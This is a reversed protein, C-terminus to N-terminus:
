NVSEHGFLFRYQTPTYGTVRKFKSSMAFNNKAGVLKSIETVTRDTQRLYKAMYEVQLYEVLEEFTLEYNRKLWHSLASQKMDMKEAIATCNVGNHLERMLISILKGFREDKRNHGRISSRMKEFRVINLLIKLIQRVGKEMSKVKSFQNQSVKIFHSLDIKERMRDDVKGILVMLVWSFVLLLIKPMDNSFAFIEEAKFLLVMHLLEKNRTFLGVTFMKERVLDFKKFRDLYDKSQFTDPSLNKVSFLKNGEDEISSVDLHEYIRLFDDRAWCLIEKVGDVRKRITNELQTEIGERDVFEKFKLEGRFDISYRKFEADFCFPGVTLILCINRISLLEKSACFLQPSCQFFAVGGLTHAYKASKYRERFCITIGAEKQHREECFSDQPDSWVLDDKGQQIDWIYLAIPADLITRVKNWIRVVDPHCVIAKLRAIESTNYPDSSTPLSDM